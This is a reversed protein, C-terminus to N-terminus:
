NKQQKLETRTNKLADTIDPTKYVYGMQSLHSPIVQADSLIAASMEGFIIKLAWSPVPFRIAMPNFVEKMCKSFQKSTVAAPATLNYVEKRDERDKQIIQYTAGAVDTEEIWSIHNKGDGFYPAAFTRIPFLFPKIFGGKSTIVVGLRLISTTIGSQKNKTFAEEWQRCLRSLFDDKQIESDSEDVPNKNNGYIGVATICIFDETQIIKEQIMKWLFMIPITRSELLIQKRKKTWRGDAIGVGTTNIIADFNLNKVQPDISEEAPNWWLHNPDPHKSRSLIYVEVGKKEFHEKLITGVIGSGGAILIKQKQNKM